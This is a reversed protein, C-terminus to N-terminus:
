GAPREIPMERRGCLRRGTRDWRDRLRSPDSSPSLFPSSGSVSVNRDHCGWVLEYRDDDGPLAYRAIARVVVRVPVADVPTTARCRSAPVGSRGLRRQAPSWVESARAPGELSISGAAVGQPAKPLNELSWCHRSTPESDDFRVFEAGGRAGRGLDRRGASFILVNTPRDADGIGAMRMAGCIRRGGHRRALLQTSVMGPRPSAVVGPSRGLEVVYFRDITCIASRGFAPGKSHSATAM